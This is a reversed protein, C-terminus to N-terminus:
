ATMTEQKRQIPAPKAALMLGWFNSEFERETANTIRFGHTPILRVALMLLDLTPFTELVVLRSRESDKIIRRAENMLENQNKATILSNLILVKDQSNSPFPMKRSSGTVFRINKAGTKEKLKAADANMKHAVDLCTVGGNTVFYKAVYNELIARGSGISAVMDGKRFAAHQFVYRADNHFSWLGQTKYYHEALLSWKKALDLDATGHIGSDIERYKTRAERVEEEPREGAFIFKRFFETFTPRSRLAM